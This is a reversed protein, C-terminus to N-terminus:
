KEAREAETILTLGAEITIEALVIRDWKSKPRMASFLDREIEM